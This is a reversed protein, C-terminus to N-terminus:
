SPPMTGSPGIPVVSPRGQRFTLRVGPFWHTQVFLGLLLIPPVWWTGYGVIVPTLYALGAAAIHWRPMEDWYSYLLVVFGLCAASMDYHFGYPSILFTATAATYANFNRCLVIVTALAYGVFGLAGYAIMPTTGMIAWMYTSGGVLQRGQYGIAHALFDGWHGVTLASIVFLLLTAAIAILVARSGRLVIAPVVLLGLHPKVILAAAATGSGRLAALFLASCLLGTQGFQLCILTAPSLIAVLVPLGKQLLPRAAWYFVGLSFLGWASFAVLPPLLAFPFFLLLAPPPYTFNLQNINAQPFMALGYDAYATLDYPNVGDMLARPALWYNLFDSVWVPAITFHRLSFFAGVAWLLVLL